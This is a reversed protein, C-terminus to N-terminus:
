DWHAKVYEAVDEATVGEFNINDLLKTTIFETISEPTEEPSGLTKVANILASIVTEAKDTMVGGSIQDLMEPTLEFLSELSKNESMM